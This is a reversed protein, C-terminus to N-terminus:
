RGLDPPSARAGPGLGYARSVLEDAGLGSRKAWEVDLGEGHGQGRGAFVVTGARAEVAVPCAPLKLPGRLAECPLDRREEWRDTGDTASTV